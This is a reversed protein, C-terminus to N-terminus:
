YIPLALNTAYQKRISAEIIDAIKEAKIAENPSLREGLDHDASPYVINNTTKLVIPPTNAHVVTCVSIAMLTPLLPNLCMPRILNPM